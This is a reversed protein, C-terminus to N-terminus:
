VICEFSYPSHMNSYFVFEIVCISVHELRQNTLLAIWGSAQTEAQAVNEHMSHHCLSLDILQLFMCTRYMTLYKAARTNTNRNTGTSASCSATSAKPSCIFSAIANWTPSANVTPGYVRKSRTGTPSGYNAWIRFVFCNIWNSLSLCTLKASERFNRYAASFAATLCIFM